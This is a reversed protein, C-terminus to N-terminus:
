TIKPPTAAPKKNVKTSAHYSTRNAIAYSEKKNVNASLITIAVTTINM